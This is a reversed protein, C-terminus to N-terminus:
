DFKLLMSIVQNSLQYYKPNLTVINDKEILVGRELFIQYNRDKELDKGLILIKSLRFGLCSRLGLMIRETIEEKSSLKEIVEGKQSFYEEFSSSNTKRVGSVFSSASVGFGIYEDRKWYSLNHKCMKGKKAFNSIEYRFFGRRKLMKNCLEYLKATKDDNPLVIQGKEVENFLATGKELQLTYASIHGVKDAFFKIADKVDKKKQFPLGLMLDVSIKEFGCEKALTVCQKAQKVTHIRGIAKLIKSNLSQVGFSIRNIGMERYLELKRKTASNPNCEITIECDEKFCFKNRLKKLISFIFDESVCSPTGGGFFVSSVDGENKCNEIEKQLHAFYKEHELCVVSNFDCYKCKKECFPIHVYIAYSRRKDQMRKEVKQNLNNEKNM